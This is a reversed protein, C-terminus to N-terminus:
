RGHSKLKWWHSKIIIIMIILLDLGFFIDIVEWRFAIKYNPIALAEWLLRIFLFVLLWMIVERYVGSVKSWLALFALLLAGKDWVYYWRDAFSNNTGTLLYWLALGTLVWTIALTLLKAM